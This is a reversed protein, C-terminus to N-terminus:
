RRLVSDVLICEASSIASCVVMLAFSALVVPDTRLHDCDDADEYGCSIQYSRQRMMDALEHIIHTQRRPDEIAKILRDVLGIQRDIERMFLVGGDSSVSPEDFRATIKKNKLPAFELQFTTDKNM